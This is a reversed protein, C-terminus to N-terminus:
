VSVYFSIVKDLKIGKWERESEIYHDITWCLHKDQTQFVKAVNGSFFLTKDNEEIEEGEKIAYVILKINNMEYDGLKKL